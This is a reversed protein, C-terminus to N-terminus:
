VFVYVGHMFTGEFAHYLMRHSGTLGDIFIEILEIQTIVFSVYIVLHLFAPFTIRFMKKQGFAILLMSKLRFGFSSDIKEPRGSNINDYIEKFKRFAVFFSTGVLAIFLIIQLITFFTM